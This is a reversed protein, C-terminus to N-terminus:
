VDNKAIKILMIYQSPTMGTQRKFLERFYSAKNYGVMQAVEDTKYKGSLLYAKAKEMRLYVLYDSFNMRTHKKFLRSLYSYNFNFKDAVEHLSIDRACNDRIYAEIKEIDDNEGELQGLLETEIEDILAFLEKKTKIGAARARYKETEINTKEAARQLFLRIFEKILQPSYYGIVHLIDSQKQKTFLLEDLVLAAMERQKQQTIERLSEFWEISYDGSKGEGPFTLLKQVEQAYETVAQRADGAPVLVLFKASGEDATLLFASIRENEIQAIGKWDNEDRTAGDATQFEVIACRGDLGYKGAYQERLAAYDYVGFYYLRLDQNLKENQLVINHSLRIQEQVQCARRRCIEQMKAVAAKLNLPKEWFAEVGVNVAQKAYEFERYGTMLVVSTGLGREFIWTAVEMGTVEPMKIDLIAIDAPEKELHEIVSKGNDYAGVIRVQPCERELLRSVGRVNAIEDDAIIVSYRYM